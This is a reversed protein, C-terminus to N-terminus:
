ELPICTRFSCYSLLLALCKLNCKKNIEKIIIEISTEKDSFVKCIIKNSQM